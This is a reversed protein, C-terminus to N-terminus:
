FAIGLSFGGRFLPMLIHKARVQIKDGETTVDIRNRYYPIRDIESEIDDKYTESNSTSTGTLQVNGIGMELGAFYFDFSVRDAILFQYGIQFGAALDSIKGKLSGEGTLDAGNIEPSITHYKLYPEYYFGTPTIGKGTYHRYALRLHFNRITAMKITDDEYLFLKAFNDNMKREHPFGFGLELSNKENIAKEFGFSFSGYLFNYPHVKLVNEGYQGYGESVILIFFLMFIVTRM